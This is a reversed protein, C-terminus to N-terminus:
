RIEGDRLKEKMEQVTMRLGKREIQKTSAISELTPESDTLVRVPIRKKYDGFLLIEEQRAMYVLEDILKTMALTEADKSSHCVRDIQKSKWMLPSARTMKEDALVIMMGGISKQDSKYSADVIGIIQLKEKDGIKEYVVRNEEKKIKEVIENVSRLDSIEASNNKKALNLASYSLDPRTGQSLWSIKGTYKRYEKLEAKTLKEKRDAKRIEKIEEISDAYDEMSVEIRGNEAKVDLGTFRFKDEEVKSVTFREKIGNVIRTVFEADGAITFDDVHSLNLGMLKGDRHEYYFADDGPLTKLGLEQLTEKVKLYFKRSADDLGYLPKLM